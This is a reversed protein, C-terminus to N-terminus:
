WRPQLYKSEKPVSELSISCPRTNSFVPNVGICLFLVCACVFLLEPLCSANPTEGLFIRRNGSDCMSRPNGEYGLQFLIGMKGWEVWPAGTM